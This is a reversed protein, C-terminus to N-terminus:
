WVWQYTESCSDLPLFPSPSLSTKNLSSTWSSLYYLTPPLNIPMSREHLSVSLSLAFFEFFFRDWHCGYTGYQSGRSRVWGQLSLGAVIRKLSPVIFAAQGSAILFRLTGTQARPLILLLLGAQLILLCSHPQFKCGSPSTVAKVVDDCFM